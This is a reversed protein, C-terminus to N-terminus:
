RGCFDQVLIVGNQTQAMGIGVWQYGRGLINEMHVQSHELAIEASQWSPFYEAYNSGYNNGGGTTCTTWGNWDDGASPHKVLYDAWFQARRTLAAGLHLSRKVRHTVRVHNVRSLNSSQDPSYASAAGTLLLLCLATSAALRRIRSCFM